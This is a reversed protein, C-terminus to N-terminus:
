ITLLIEGWPQPRPRLESGSSDLGCGLHRAELNERGGGGKM